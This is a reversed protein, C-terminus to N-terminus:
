TSTTSLRLERGLIDGLRATEAEIASTPVTGAERFWAVRVTEADLEWTGAM